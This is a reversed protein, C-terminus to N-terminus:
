AQAVRAIENFFGIAALFDKVTWERRIAKSDGTLKWDPLQRMQEAAEQPSIPEVGGECPRCKMTTLEAPSLTTM